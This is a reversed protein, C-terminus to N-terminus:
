HGSILERFQDRAATILSAAQSGYVASQRLLDFAAVYLSVEDKRTIEIRASMTEIHVMMDDWIWFATQSEIAREAMAPIIGVTIRPANRVDLLHDLQEVMIEPTGVFTHLTQEALLFSLRRVGSRLVTQRRLRSATAAARDDPVGLFRIWHAMIEDSYAATHFLGPLVTHEYARLQRVRQHLQADAEQLKRLGTQTQRRWERYLSDVSRAMSIMDGAQDEAGCAGCWARIEADTLGQKGHEVRSVKTFHLGTREALARGSLSAQWRLERLRAGFAERAEQVDGPVGTM